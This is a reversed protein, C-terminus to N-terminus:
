KYETSKLGSFTLIEKEQSNLNNELLLSKSNVPATMSNGM